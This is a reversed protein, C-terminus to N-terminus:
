DAAAQMTVETFVEEYKKAVVRPHFHREYYSLNAAAKQRAQPLHLLVAELGRAISEADLVDVTEGFRSWLERAPSWNPALIVCGYNIAEVFVRGYAEERTPLAFLHSREFLHQLQSQSLETLVRAEAPVAVPGDEFSTVLTLEVSVEAHRRRFLQYAQVLSELGKRRAQRGVFLIHLPTTSQWKEEFREQSIEVLSPLFFPLVRAKHAHNPYQQEFAALSWPHRVIVRAARAIMWEPVWLLRSIQERRLVGYTCFDADFLLPKKLRNLPFNFNTYFLDANMELSEPVYVWRQCSTFAHTYIIRRFVPLRNFLARTVCSLNSPVVNGWSSCRDLKIPFYESLRVLEAWIGYDGNRPRDNIFPTPYLTQLRM